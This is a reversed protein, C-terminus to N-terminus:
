LKSVLNLETSPVFQITNDLKRTNICHPGLQALDTAGVLRMATEIEDRLINIVRRVGKEGFGGALGFLAPRGIGVQKAGLCLAKVVDTGRRIGGDIYIEVKRFIEPSDLRLQELVMLPAEATDLARGGHNSLIIGDVLKHGKYFQQTALLVDDVTQVGKLIIKVQDPLQNRLWILDSWVLDATTGQFLLKGVGVSGEQPKDVSPALTELVAGRAHAEEKAVREDLERKGPWPADVTLVVANCGAKVVDRLQRESKKRDNQVYLQFMMPQDPKIRASAIDSYRLSANNSVMQVIGENGCARAIAKEGDPHALRALAAPSVFVPLSTRIGQIRSETNVYRVDRLVRPRFLVFKFIENNFNKSFLDDAASFYYAWAKPSLTKQAHEEIDRLNLMDSPVEGTEKPQEDVDEKALKAADEDTLRGMTASKPLHEELTGPPHIAEFPKTADQGALNLISMKGGPHEPLFSTVDYVVNNIIVWCSKESNHKAIEKISLSKM